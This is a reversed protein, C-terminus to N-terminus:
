SPITEFFHHLGYSPLLILIADKQRFPVQSILENRHTHLVCVCVWMCLIQWEKNAQKM